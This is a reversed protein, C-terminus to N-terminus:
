SKHFFYFKSLNIKFSVKYNAGQMQSVLYKEKIYNFLKFNHKTFLVKYPYDYTAKFCTANNEPKTDIVLNDM